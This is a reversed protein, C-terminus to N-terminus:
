EASVGKQHIGLVAPPYPRIDWPGLSDFASWDFTTDSEVVFVSKEPAKEYLPTLLGLLDETRENFFHYPPSCFVLWPHDKPLEPDRRYWLFVDGAQVKVLEQIGLSDANKQIIKATPFHQETFLCGCAGRSVAELGLAGTGGFLDLVYSGPVYSHILNFAAERVRDKMPRLRRDGLYSLKSGRFKGGIIRLGVPDVEMSYSGVNKGAKRLGSSGDTGSRPNQSRHPVFQAKRPNPRAM